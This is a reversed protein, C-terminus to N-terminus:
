AARRSRKPAPKSSRFRSFIHALDPRLQEATFRGDTAAEIAMCVDVPPKGSALYASIRSQARGVIEATKVQGGLAAVAEHIPTDAM